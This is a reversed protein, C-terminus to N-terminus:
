ASKGVVRFLRPTPLYMYKTLRMQIRLLKQSAAISGSIHCVWTPVRKESNKWYSKLPKKIRSYSMHFCEAIRDNQRKYKTSINGPQQSSRRCKKRLEIEPGVELCFRNPKHTYKRPKKYIDHLTSESVSFRKLRHTMYSSINVKNKKIQWTNWRLFSPRCMRKLMNTSCPILKTQPSYNDATYSCEKPPGTRYGNQHCNHLYDCYNPWIVM